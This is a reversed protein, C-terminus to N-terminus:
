LQEQMQQDCRVSPHDGATHGCHDAIKDQRQEELKFRQIGSNVIAKRQNHRNKIKKGGEKDTLNRNGQKKRFWRNM